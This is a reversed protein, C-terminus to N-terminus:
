IRKNKKSFNIILGGAVVPDVRAWLEIEFM